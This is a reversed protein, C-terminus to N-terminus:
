ILPEMFADRMSQSTRRLILKEIREAEKSKALAYAKTGFFTADPNGFSSFFLNQIETYTKDINNNIYMAVLEM